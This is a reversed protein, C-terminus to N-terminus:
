ADLDPYSIVDTKLSVQHKMFPMFEGMKLLRQEIWLKIPLEAVMFAMKLAFITSYPGLLGADFTFDASKCVENVYYRNEISLSEDPQLAHTMSNLLILCGYYSSTCFINSAGHYVYTTPFLPDYPDSTVETPPPLLERFRLFWARLATSLDSTTNLFSVVANIDKRDLVRFHAAIGPCTALYAHFENTIQTYPNPNDPDPDSLVLQWEPQCLFSDTGRMFAEMTVQGRFFLLMSHDFDSNIHNPGRLQLLKSAGGAHKVWAHKKTCAFLEYISLFMTACLTESSMAEKPDGIAKSLSRLAHGYTQRASLMISEQRSLMGIYHTGMCRVADDLAKSNGLRPPVFSLWRRLFHTDAFEDMPTSDELLVKLAQSNDQTWPIISQPILLPTPAESPSRSAQYEPTTRASWSPSRSQSQSKPSPRELQRVHRFSGEGVRQDDKAIPIEYVFKAPKNYGPCERRFRKCRGCEPRAEDCKVRQKVCARCGKSRAVGVM